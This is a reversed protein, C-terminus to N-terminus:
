TTESRASDADQRLRWELQRLMGQLLLGDKPALRLRAIWRRIKQTQFEKSDRFLFGSEDLLPILLGLIREREAASVSEPTRLAPVPKARRALEWCCLAVAQGLNMSPCDPNTPITLLWDCYSLQEKSMGYKETGFVLAAQGSEAHTRLALAAPELERQVVDTSRGELSATGVVLSADGLAEPLSEVVRAERLVDGAGMASKAERFARDRPNVLWLRDFGFNLMARAAAGVNLPNRPEILVFRLQSKWDVASRSM